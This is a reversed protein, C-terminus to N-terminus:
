KREAQVEEELARVWKALADKAAVAERLTQVKTNHCGIIRKEESNWEAKTAHFKRRWDAALTERKAAEEKLM